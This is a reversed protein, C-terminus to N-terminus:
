YPSRKGQRGPRNEQALTIKAGSIARLLAGQDAGEASAATYSSAVMALGFAIATMKLNTKRM